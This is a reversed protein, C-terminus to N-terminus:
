NAVCVNVQKETETSASTAYKLLRQLITMGYNFEHNGLVFMDYGITRFTKMAPDDVEPKQFAYYYTLPTGQITDGLDAVYLNEGYKAREESIYTSVRTLGRDYEGSKSQDATYDTAYIQGHLDSTVLFEFDVVEDAAFVSPLMALVMCLVLLISLVRSLKKM